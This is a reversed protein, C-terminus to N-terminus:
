GLTNSLISSITNTGVNNMRLQIYEAVYTPKIYVDVIIEDPNTSSPHVEVKGAEIGRNSKADKLINKVELAITRRVGVRNEEFVYKRLIKEVNKEVHNFLSRVNVRNFSSPRNLLTKQTMLIGDSVFNCGKKHYEDKATKDVNIFISEGNKIIGREMGAGPTWPTEKSAQSKLGAIDGGLNVLKNKGSFGDLQEKVNMTFHTYQSQGLYALYQNIRELDADGLRKPTKFDNLAIALGGETYIVDNQISEEGMLFTIFRTPLGVVAICDGRSEALDIASKNNYENGIIIDIDYSDKTLTLHCNDFDSEIPLTVNGNSLQILNQADEYYLSTSLPNEKWKIWVYNSSISEIEDFDVQFKEVIKGNRFVVLCAESPMMYTLINQATHGFGINANYLYQSETFLAVSLLNGSEGPTKAVIRIDDDVLNLNSVQNDWDEQDLITVSDGNNANFQFRGACRTVWIGTAYQLYNYVQYWDNHYLGIGRGFIFKFENIDTIFVPKDIPGKEFFGVYAAVENTFGPQYFSRDITQTIVSPSSM